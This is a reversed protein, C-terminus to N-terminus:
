RMYQISGQMQLSGTTVCRLVKAAQSKCNVVQPMALGLILSAHRRTNQWANSVRMEKRFQVSRCDDIRRQKLKLSTMEDLIPNPFRLALAPSAASM